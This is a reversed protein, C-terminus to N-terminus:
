KLLALADKTDSHNEGLTKKRIEYAKSILKIGENNQKKVNKLFVGFNLYSTATGPHEEGFVKKKIELSKEFFEEAKDYKQRVNQYFM